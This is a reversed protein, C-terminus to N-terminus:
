QDFTKNEHCRPKPNCNKFQGYVNRCVYLEDWPTYVDEFHVDEFKFDTCPNTYNCNLVAPNTFVSNVATVNKLYISTMNAKLPSQFIINRFVAHQICNNNENPPVSGVCMGAGGIQVIDEVLVHETCGWSKLRSPKLCVSDDYNHVTCNRVIINRGAVDIGDTNTTDWFGTDPLM